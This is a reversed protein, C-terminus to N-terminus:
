LGIQVLEELSKLLKSHMHSYVICFWLYKWLGQKIKYCAGFSLKKVGSLM